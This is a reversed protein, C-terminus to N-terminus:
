KNQRSNELIRSTINVDGVKGGGQSSKLNERQKQKESVKSHYSVM